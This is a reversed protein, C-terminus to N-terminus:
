LADDLSQAGNRPNSAFPRAAREICKGINRRMEPFAPVCVSFSAGLKGLQQQLLRVYRQHGSFSEARGAIQAKRVSSGDFADLFSQAAEFTKERASFGSRLRAARVM